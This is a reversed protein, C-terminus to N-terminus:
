RQESQPLESLVFDVFRECNSFAKEAEKRFVLREEYEAM